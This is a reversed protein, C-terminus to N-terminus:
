LTLIIKGINKNQRMRAHAMEAQELPFEQDVPVKVAGSTFSSEVAHLFQWLLFIFTLTFSLEYDSLSHLLFHPPLPPHAGGIITVLLKAEFECLHLDFM